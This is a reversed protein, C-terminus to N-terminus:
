QDDGWFHPYKKWQGKSLTSPLPSPLSLSVNVDMLQRGNAGQGPSQSPVQMLPIHVQIPILGAVRQDMPWDRVM